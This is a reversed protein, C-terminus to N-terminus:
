YICFRPWSHGCNHAYQYHGYHHELIQSELIQVIEDKRHNNNAHDVFSLRIASACFRLYCECGPMCAALWEQYNKINSKVIVRRQNFVSVADQQTVELIPTNHWRERSKEYGQNWVKIEPRYIIYNQRSWYLTLVNVNGRKSARLITVSMLHDYFIKRLYRIM